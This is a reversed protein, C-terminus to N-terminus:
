HKNKMHEKLKYPWKFSQGCVTCDYSTPRGGTESWKLHRKTRNHVELGHTDVCAVDYIACYFKKEELNEQLRVKTAQKEEERNKGRWKERCRKLSDQKKDELLQLEAPTFDLGDATWFSENLPNHSNLGTYRFSDLNWLRNNGFGFDWTRSKMSWFTCHFVAELLVVM